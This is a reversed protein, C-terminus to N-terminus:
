GRRGMTYEEDASAEVDATRQKLIGNLEARISAITEQRNRNRFILAETRDPHEPEVEPQETGLLGNIVQLMRDLNEAVLPAHNTNRRLATIELKLQKLQEKADKWKKIEEKCQHQIARQIPNDSSESAFLTTSASILLTLIGFKLNM